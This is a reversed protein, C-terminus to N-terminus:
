HIQKIFLIRQNYTDRFYKRAKAKDEAVIFAAEPMAMPFAFFDYYILFVKM